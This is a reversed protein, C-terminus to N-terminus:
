GSALTCEHYRLSNVDVLEGWPRGAFFAAIEEPCEHSTIAGPSPPAVAAWAAALEDDINV